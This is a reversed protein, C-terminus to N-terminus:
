ISKVADYILFLFDFNIPSHKQERAHESSLQIRNSQKRNISGDDSGGKDDNGDCRRKDVTDSHTDGRM